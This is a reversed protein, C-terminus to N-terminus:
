DITFGIVSAHTVREGNMGIYGASTRKKICVCEVGQVYEGYKKYPVWAGVSRWVYVSSGRKVHAPYSTRIKGSVAKRFMVLAYMRVTAASNGAIELASELNDRIKFCDDTNVYRFGM